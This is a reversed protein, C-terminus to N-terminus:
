ISEFIFDGEQEKIVKSHDNEGFIVEDPIGKPDIMIGDKEYRVKLEKKTWTEAKPFANCFFMGDENADPTFNKCKLCIPSKIDM